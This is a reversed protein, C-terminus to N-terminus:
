RSDGKLDNFIDKFSPNLTDIPKQIYTTIKYKTLIYGTDDLLLLTEGNSTLRKRM